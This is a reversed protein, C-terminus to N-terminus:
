PDIKRDTQIKKRDDRERETKRREREGQRKRKREREGQRDTEREREQGDVVSMLCLCLLLSRFCNPTSCTLDSLDILM